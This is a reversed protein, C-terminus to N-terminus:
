RRIFPFLSLLFLAAGAFFLGLGAYALPALSQYHQDWSRRSRRVVLHPNAESIEGLGNHSVSLTLEEQAKADFRGVGRAVTFAGKLGWTTWHSQNREFPVRLLIRRWVAKTSRPGPAIYVYDRVDGKAISQNGRTIEWSIELTSPTETGVVQELANGKLTKDVELQVEYMESYDTRFVESTPTNTQTDLPLM